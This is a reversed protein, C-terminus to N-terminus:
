GQDTSPANDTDDDELADPGTGPYFHDWSQVRTKSIIESSNITMGLAVLENRITEIERVSGTVIEVHVNREGGLLERTSVM